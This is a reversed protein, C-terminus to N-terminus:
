IVIVSRHVKNNMYQLYEKAHITLTRSMDHKIYVGLSFTNAPHIGSINSFGLHCLHILIRTLIFM